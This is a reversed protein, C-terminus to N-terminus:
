GDEAAEEYARLWVLLSYLTPGRIVIGADPDCQDAANAIQKLFSIGTVAVGYEDIFRQIEDTDGM